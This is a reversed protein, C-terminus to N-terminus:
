SSTSLLVASLLVASVGHPVPASVGALNDISEPIPKLPHSFPIPLGSAPSVIFPSALFPILSACCCYLDGDRNRGTPRGHPTRFYTIIATFSEASNRKPTTYPTM